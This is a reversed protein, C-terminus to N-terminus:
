EKNLILDEAVIKVGNNDYNYFLNLGLKENEVWHRRWVATKVDAKVNSPKDINARYRVQATNYKILESDETGNSGPHPVSELSLYLPTEGDIVAIKAGNDYMDVLNYEGPKDINVIEEPKLLGGDMMDLMSFKRYGQYGMVSNEDGTSSYNQKDTLCGAPIDRNECTAKGAHTIGVDHGIEHVITGAYNKQKVNDISPATIIPLSDGSGAHGAYDLNKCAVAGLMIIDVSGTRRLEQAKQQLYWFDKASTYDYCGDKLFVPESTNVEVDAPVYRGYTALKFADTVATADDKEITDVFADTLKEDVSNEVPIVIMNVPGNSAIAERPQTDKPLRMYQAKEDDDLDNFRYSSDIYDREATSSAKAKKLYEEVPIKSAFPSLAVGGLAGILAGAVYSKTRELKSIKRDNKPAKNM